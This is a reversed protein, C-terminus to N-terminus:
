PTLSETSTPRLKSPKYRQHPFGRNTVDRNRETEDDDWFGKSHGTQRNHSARECDKSGRGGQETRQYRVVVIWGRAPVTSSVVPQCGPGVAGRQSADGRGPSEARRGIRGSQQLGGRNRRTTTNCQRQPQWWCRPRVIYNGARSNNM